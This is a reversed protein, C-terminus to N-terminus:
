GASGNRLTASYIELAQELTRTRDVTARTEKELPSRALLHFIDGAGEHFKSTVGVDAFTTTIEDMEDAWRVSDAAIFPVSYRMTTLKDSQSAEFEQFLAETLGMEHAALLVATHLTMTGKTLAAYVMKLGSAQGINAGCTAATIEDTSLATLAEAKEGSLYIRTKSKTKFPAAGIIGGDIFTAGSPEITAAIRAATAPAVANLDAYLPKRDAANIHEAAEAAVCEALGPPVISLIAGAHAVSEAQSINEIGADEGRTRSEASRGDFCASVEHGARVLSKGVAAGMDGLGILAIKM